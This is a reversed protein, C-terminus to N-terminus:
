QACTLLGGVPRPTCAPPPECRPDLRGHAHGHSRGRTLILLRLNIAHNCKQCKDEHEAHQDEDVFQSMEQGGLTHADPNQLKLEAEIRGDRAEAPAVGFVADARQRQAAVDLHGALVRFFDLPVFLAMSALRHGYWVRM